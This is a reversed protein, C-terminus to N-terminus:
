FSSKEQFIMQALNDPTHAELGARTGAEKVVQHLSGKPSLVPCPEVVLVM